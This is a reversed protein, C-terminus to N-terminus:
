DSGYTMNGNKQYSVGDDCYVMNGNAQCNRAFASSPALVALVSVVALVKLQKNM